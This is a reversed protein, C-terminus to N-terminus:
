RGETAAKFILSTISLFISPIFPEIYINTYEALFLERESSTNEFCIYVGLTGSAKMGSNPLQWM